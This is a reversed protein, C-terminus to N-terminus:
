WEPQQPPFGSLHPAISRDLSRNQPPGGRSTGKKCLATMVLLPFSMRGPLGETVELFWHAPLPDTGGGFCTEKRPPRPNIKWCIAPDRQM